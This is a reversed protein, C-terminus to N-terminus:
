LASCSISLGQSRGEIASNSCSPASSYQFLVHHVNDGNAPNSTSVLKIQMSSDAVIKSYIM